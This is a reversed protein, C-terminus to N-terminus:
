RELRGRTLFFDLYFFSPLFIYSLFVGVYLESMTRKVVPACPLSDGKCNRVCSSLLLLYFQTLPESGLFVVVMYWVGCLSFFSFNRYYCSKTTFSVSIDKKLFYTHSNFKSPFSCHPFSNAMSTHPYSCFSTQTILM